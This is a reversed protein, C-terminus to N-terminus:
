TTTLCLDQLRCIQDPTFNTRDALSYYQQLKRRVTEVSEITPICTFLSTVDFFVMTEACELKLEKIKSTFDTFNSVNYHTNGVLPALITVFHKAINYTTSNISSIIPVIGTSFETSIHQIHNTNDSVM